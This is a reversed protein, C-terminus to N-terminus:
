GSSVKNETPAKNEQPPIPQETSIDLFTQANLHVREPPPPQSSQSDLTDPWILDLSAPGPPSEERSEANGRPHHSLPAHLSLNNPEVKGRVPGLTGTARVGGAHPSILNHAAKWPM